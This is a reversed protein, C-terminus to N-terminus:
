ANVLEGSKSFEPLTPRNKIGEKIIAMVSAKEEGEIQLRPARVYVNSLGVETAALKIYQVLKPRIDLELLPMFWRYIEVAEKVRGAQALRVIAVTEAPFADVLGGLWGDAGLLIEELALTDVGCLIQYRDGFKSRMRSVNTVDRTSEKVAHINEVSSLQDFMDITVELKYDVPNNYILIPLATKAAVAKFYTVIERDDAKYQLPPLMMIGDAGDEEANKACAIADATSKEAVTSIIPIRQKVIKVSERLLERKEAGTLTSAEGLSGGLVIGTIGAEIQFELNKEFMQYDIKDDATFPTLLAPFIGSWQNKNM